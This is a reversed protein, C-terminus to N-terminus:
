FDEALAFTFFTVSSHPCLFPLCVFGSESTGKDEM